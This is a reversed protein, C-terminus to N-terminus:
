GTNVTKRRKLNRKLEQTLGNIYETWMRDVTSRLLIGNTVPIKKRL